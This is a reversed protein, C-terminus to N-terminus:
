SVQGFQNRYGNINNLLSSPDTGVSGLGKLAFQIYVEKNYEPTNNPSLNTFARGGVLRVAWCCTDYQVGYLLNQFHNANWDQSWRGVASVNSTLPWAVSLDTLKLNDQSSSNVNLGSFYDGNHAFSYGLNILRLNDPRYQLAVTTNALQRSIPNWIANLNFRWNNYVHYDFLGSLPSLGYHNNPNTPNDTCINPDNCLTVRRNSFYVIEGIGMRAKELGSEKDIFRSSVGIGIQNADGIRDLGTFRNYNFLQDYNLNNVTTDFLPISSQNRYPIYTYYIQPELTQEYHNSFITTNRSLFLGAAIDFIPIARHISNPTNTDATKSLNYDTLALQFRPNIYAAPSYIPLSIGPQLHLRNGVPVDIDTGPTQLIEFRTAETNLFYDLGLARNPFDGNLILQPFRRYQNVAFAEDVPHLTQYAQLRGTFNWNENRYYLDGEQLLYNQTIENLNGFDRYYYDDGAYNFDVHSSWHPNFRSDDRWYLGKRTTSDNELRNLEAQTVPDSSNGFKEKLARQDDQFQSDDPLVSVNLSGESTSSLYRFKDTLQVGRKTLLGPTIVMDYNPAMNWYIPALLYPGFNGSVGIAPWLFGSKRQKDIPFSFYPVYFVPVDKVLIRAHTAYGRGTNKNLVIHGAKVRWAPKTPPCTSFSTGWFEYVRPQNQAFESATGWANLGSLQREPQSEQETRSVDDSENLATRYLIDMLSKARTEFNYRGKKAVVLTNPERLHVDGILDIANLKGNSPDRYLFAKNSTIQQGERKITVQGELISTARQSFLTQDSTIEVTDRQKPYTFAPEVYYGGCFNPASEWGLEKAITQSALTPTNNPSAETQACFGNTQLLCTSAMAYALTLKKKASM